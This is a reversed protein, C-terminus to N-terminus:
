GAAAHADGKSDPLAVTITTGRATMSDVLITGGHLEVIKHSILMGLGHGTDSKGESTRDFIVRKTQPSMGAGSDSVSLLVVGDARRLRVTVEADDGGHRVANTILNLLVQRLLGPDVAAWPPAGRCEFRITAAETRRADRVVQLALKRLNVSHVRMTFLGADIRANVLLDESLVSMRRANSGVTEILESQEATLAGATGDALLESAGRILALPTRVEHSLMAVQDARQRALARWRENEVVLLRARQWQWGAVACTLGFALLVLVIGLMFAM